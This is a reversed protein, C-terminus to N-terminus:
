IVLLSRIAITNDRMEALLYLQQAFLWGVPANRENVRPYPSVDTLTQKRDTMKDLVLVYKKGVITVSQSIRGKGVHNLAELPAALNATEYGNVWRDGEMKGFKVVIAHHALHTSTVFGFNPDIPAIEDESLLYEVVNFVSVLQDYLREFAEDLAPVK